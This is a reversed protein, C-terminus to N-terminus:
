RESRRTVGRAELDALARRQTRYDAVVWVILAAMVFAVVGYAGIIFNAHQGAM